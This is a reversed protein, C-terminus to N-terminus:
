TRNLTADAWCEMCLRMNKHGRQWISSCDDCVNVYCKRCAYPEKGRPVRGIEDQCGSCTQPEHSGAKTRRRQKHFVHTHDLSLLMKAREEVTQTIRKLTGSVRYHSADYNEPEGASGKLNVEGVCYLDVRDPDSESEIAVLGSEYISGRVTGESPSPSDAWHVSHFVVAYGRRGTPTTFSQHYEVVLFDRPASTSAISAPMKMTRLCVFEDNTDILKHRIGQRMSPHLLTSAHTSRHGVVDLLEDLPVHVQTVGFIRPVHYLPTPLSKSRLPEASHPQQPKMAQPSTQHDYSYSTPAAMPRRGRIRNWISRSFSMKPEFPQQEQPQDYQSEPPSSVSRMPPATPSDSRTPMRLSEYLEVGESFSLLKVNKRQMPTQLTAQAEKVLRAGTQKALRVLAGTMQPSLGHAPMKTTPPTPQRTSTSSVSAMRHTDRSGTLDALSMSSGSGEMTLSPSGDFSSGVTKASSSSSARSKKARAKAAAIVAKLEAKSM